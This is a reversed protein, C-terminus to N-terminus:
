IEEDDFDGWIKFDQEYGFAEIDGIIFLNEAPQQHILRQCLEHDKETLQRIMKIGRHIKIM